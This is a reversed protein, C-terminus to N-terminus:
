RTLVMLVGGEGPYAGGDQVVDIKLGTIKGDRTAGVTIEQVQGRGHAMAVQSESRTEMYRVPRGLRRALAVVVVQEPYADFKAGFGGGVHPSIVRLDQEAMGLSEALTKRVAFASQSPCWVTLRGSGPDPQALIGNPEIPVPAVRQNVMRANVVVEAGELPDDFVPPDAEDYPEPEGPGAVRLAVNSGHEPFLLPADPALAELPDVVAPLPDIDVLVTEAADAAQTRTEAVVVAVPEGVFRVVGDALPPRAMAAPIEDLARRPTLGLDAAAFVGIVGPMSAAKGQINVSSPPRWDARVIWKM